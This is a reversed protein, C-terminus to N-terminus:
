QAALGDRREEDFQEVIARLDEVRVMLRALKRTHPPASLGAEDDHRDTLV